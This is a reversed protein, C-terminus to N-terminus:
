HHVKHLQGLHDLDEEHPVPSHTGAAKDDRYKPRTWWSDDSPSGHPGSRLRMKWPVQIHM